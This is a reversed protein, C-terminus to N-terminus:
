LRADGIRNALLIKEHDEINPKFNKKEIKRVLVPWDNGEYFCERTLINSFCKHFLSMKLLFAPWRGADKSLIDSKM